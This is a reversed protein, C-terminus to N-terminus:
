EDVEVLRGQRALPREFGPRWLGEIGARVKALRIAAAERRRRGERRDALAAVPWTLAAAIGRGLQPGHRRALRLLAAPRGHRLRAVAIENRGEMVAFAHRLAFDREPAAPAAEGDSASVTVPATSQYIVGGIRVLDAFFEFDEFGLLNLRPDFRLGAGAVADFVWRRIAVNGTGAKWVRRGERARQSLGEIRGLIADADYRAMAAAHAVALQPDATSDDDIFIAIDAGAELALGLARNRVSAYGRTPEHAYRLELGLRRADAALGAGAPVDNNDAVCVVVRADPPSALTACSALCDALLRPRGRTCIMVAVTRIPTRREQPRPIM